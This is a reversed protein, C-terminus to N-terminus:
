AVLIPVFHGVSAPNGGLVLGDRQVWSHAAFPAAKVGIVFYPFCRYHQLFFILSLASFLCRDRETFTWLRLM